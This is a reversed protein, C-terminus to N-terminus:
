EKITIQENVVTKITPLQTTEFDRVTLTESSVYHVTLLLGLLAIILKIDRTLRM